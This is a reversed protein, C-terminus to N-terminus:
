VGLGDKLFNGHEEILMNIPLGLLYDDIPHVDYEGLVM